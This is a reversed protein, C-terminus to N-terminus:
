QASRHRERSVHVLWYGFLAAAAVLLVGGLWASAIALSEGVRAPVARDLVHDYPFDAGWPPQGAANWIGFSVLVLGAL